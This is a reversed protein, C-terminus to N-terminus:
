CLCLGDMEMQKLVIYEIILTTYPVYYTYLLLKFIISSHMVCHTLQFANGITPLSPNWFWSLVIFVVFVNNINRSYKSVM